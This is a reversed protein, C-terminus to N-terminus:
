FDIYNKPLVIEFGNLRSLYNNKDFKFILKYAALCQFHKKFKKNIDFNGYKDDGVLPCGLHAFHARIQHTKGTVLLVEVLSCDGRKEVVKYDTEIESYGSKKTDSIFVKASEADKKLYAKCKAQKPKVDGYALALYFKQIDRNKIAEDLSKKAEINKAFIVLGLTNRDLRHVAFLIQGIQKELLSQLTQADQEESCTELRRPKCAVLIDADEYIVQIQIKEEKFYFEIEDGAFVDTDKGVRKGNVKVDKVRLLKQVFHFCAFSYNESIAESLKQNKKNVFKEVNM